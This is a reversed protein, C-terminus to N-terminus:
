SKPAPEPAPAPEREVAAPPPTDDVLDPDVDPAEPAEPAASQGEPQTEAALEEDQDSMNEPDSM